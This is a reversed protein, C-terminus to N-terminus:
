FRSVLSLKISISFPTSVESFVTNVNWLAIKLATMGGHSLRNDDSSFLLQM